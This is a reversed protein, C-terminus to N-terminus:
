RNLGMRQRFDDYSSVNSSDREETVENMEKHMLAGPKPGHFYPFEQRWYNRDRYEDHVPGDYEGAAGIVNGAVGRLASQRGLSVAVVDATVNVEAIDSMADMQKEMLKLLEDLGKGYLNSGGYMYTDTDKKFPEVYEEYFRKQVNDQWDEELVNATSEFQRQIEQMQLVYDPIM